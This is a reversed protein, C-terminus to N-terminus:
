MPTYRVAFYALGSSANSASGSDYSKAEGALSSNPILRIYVKSQNLVEQPLEVNVHKYGCLQWYATYSWQAVDPVTYKGAVIWKSGNLSWEVNWYRPAGIGHNLVAFQVAPKSGDCGTTSLEAVWYHYSIGNIWNSNYWACGYKAEIVGRGGSSTNTSYSIQSGDVKVGNADLVGTGVPNENYSDGLFYWAASAQTKDGVSHKLTATSKELTPYYLTGYSDVNVACETRSSNFYAFECITKTKSDKINSAMNIDSQSQHRLQYRGINGLNYIQDLSYGMGVLEAQKKSDWEFRDCEEHVIVGAITGSGYPLAEGTRRYSCTTNTITYFSNGHSDRVLLPYFSIRNAAFRTAVGGGTYGENLPTLPGKKVPFECDKLKVYTYIDDDTLESFFMEKTPISSETGAEISLINEVTAETIYYRVPDNDSLKNSGASNFTCGNLNLKVKDYRNLINDDVNQFEMMFGYRGDVSEIYVTRKTGTYDIRMSTIPINPAANGSSKDSVIYGEICIDEHIDQDGMARLEAFSIINETISIEKDQTVTLTASIKEEWDDTYSFVIDAKRTTKANPNPNVDFKLMNNVCQINSIWEEGSDGTLYNVDVEINDYSISSKIITSCQGGYYDVLMSRNAIELTSTIRGEQKIYVSDIRNEAELTIVAMRRIGENRDYAALFSGDGNLSLSPYNLDLPDTGLRVWDQGKIVKAVYPQSAYVDIQQSGSEHTVTFINDEDVAGLEPSYIKDYGSECAVFTATAVLAVIILFKNLLNKM